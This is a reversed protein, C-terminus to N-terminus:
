GRQGHLVQPSLHVTVGREDGADGVGQLLVPQRRPLGVGTVAPHLPQDEGRGTGVELPADFIVQQPARRPALSEGRFLAGAQQGQDVGHARRQGNSLRFAGPLRQGGGGGGGGQGSGGGGGGRKG